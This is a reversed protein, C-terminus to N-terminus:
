WVTLMVKRRKRERVCIEEERLAKVKGRLSVDSLRVRRKANGKKKKGQRLYKPVADGSAVQLMLGPWKGM